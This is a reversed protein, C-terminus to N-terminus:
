TSRSNGKLSSYKKNKRYKPKYRPLLLNNVGNKNDRFAGLSMKPVFQSFSGSKLAILFFHFSFSKNKGL